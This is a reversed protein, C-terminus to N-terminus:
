RRNGAASKNGVQHAPVTEAAAAACAVAYSQAADTAACIHWHIRNPRATAAPGYILRHWAACVAAFQPAM